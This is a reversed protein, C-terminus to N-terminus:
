PAVITPLLSLAVVVAVTLGMVLGVNLGWGHGPRRGARHATEEWVLLGVLVLILGGTLAAGAMAYVAPTM